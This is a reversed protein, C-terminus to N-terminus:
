NCRVHLELLSTVSQRPPELGRRINLHLLLVMSGNQQEGIYRGHTLLRSIAGRGPCLGKSVVARSTRDIVPALAAKAM